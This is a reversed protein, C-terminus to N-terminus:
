HVCMRVFILFYIFCNFYEVHQRELISPRLVLKSVARYTDRSLCTRPIADPRDTEGPSINVRVIALNKLNQGICPIQNGRIISRLACSRATSAKVRIFMSRPNRCSNQRARLFLLHRGSVTNGGCRYM